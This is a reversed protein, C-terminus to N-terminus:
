PNIIRSDRLDVNLRLGKETTMIDCRSIRGSITVRDGAKLANLEARNHEKFYAWVMQRPVKDTSNSAPVDRDRIRFGKDDATPESVNVEFVLQAPQNVMNSKFMDNVKQLGAQATTSNLMEQMDAVPISNIIADVSGIVGAPVAVPAQAVQLQQMPVPVVPPPAVLPGPPAPVPMSPSPSTRVMPRVSPHTGPEGVWVDDIQLKGDYPLTHLVLSRDDRLSEPTHKFSIDRWEGEPPLEFAFLTSGGRAKQLKARMQAKGGIFRARFRVELAVLMGKEIEQSIENSRRESSTLEIVKNGDPLTVVVGDGRWFQKGSTFDGNKIGIDAALSVTAMSIACAIWALSTQKMTPLTPQKASQRQPRAESSIQCLCGVATM